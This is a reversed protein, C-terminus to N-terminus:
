ALGEVRDAPEELGMFAFSLEPTPPDGLRRRKNALDRVTLGRFRATWNRFTGDSMGNAQRTVQPVPGRM